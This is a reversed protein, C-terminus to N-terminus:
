WSSKKVGVIEGRSAHERFCIRCMGFDRIYGRPRGCIQCRNYCKVKLGNVKKDKQRAEEYKKKMKLSKVILAKRAM